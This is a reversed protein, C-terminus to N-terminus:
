QVINQTDQQTDQPINFLVGLDETMVLREIETFLYEPFPINTDQKYACNDTADSNYGTIDGEFVGELRVTDWDINPFYLYEDLYWYYKTTNYKFNKQKLMKEYAIPTTPKLEQSQDISTVFRILPGWYGDILKPLKKETRKIKCDLPLCVCNAAVRDIDELPVCDLPLWIGNYKLLRNLNDQRRMLFKGHKLILSYIFRDSLIATDQKVAKAKNRIRSVGERVTIM